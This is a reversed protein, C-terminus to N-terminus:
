WTLTVFLRWDRWLCDRKWPAQPRFLCFSTLDYLGSKLLVSQVSRLLWLEANKAYQIKGFESDPTLSVTLSM